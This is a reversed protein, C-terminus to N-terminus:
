RHRTLLIYALAGLILVLVMQRVNSAAKRKAKQKEYALRNREKNKAENQLYEQRAQKNPKYSM